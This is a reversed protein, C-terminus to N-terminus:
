FVEGCMQVARVELSNYLAFKMRDRLGPLDPTYGQGMCSSEFMCLFVVWRVKSPDFRPLSRMLVGYARQDNIPDFSKSTSPSPEAPAQPAQFPPPQNVAQDRETVFTSIDKKFTGVDQQVARVDNKLAQHHEYISDVKTSLQVLLEKIQAMSVESTVPLPTNRGDSAM